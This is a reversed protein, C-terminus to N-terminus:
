GVYGGIEYAIPSYCDFTSGARYGLAPLTTRIYKLYMSVKGFNGGTQKIMPQTEYRRTKVTPGRGQLYRWEAYRTLAHSVCLPAGSHPQKCAPVTSTSDVDRV